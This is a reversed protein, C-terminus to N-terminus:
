REGMPRTAWPGDLSQEDKTRAEKAMMDRVATLCANVIQRMAEPSLAMEKDVARVHNVIEDIIVQM